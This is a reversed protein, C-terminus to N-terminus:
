CHIVVNSVTTRKSASIIRYQPNFYVSFMELRVNRDHIGLLVFCELKIKNKALCGLEQFAYRAQLVDDADETARRWGYAKVDLYSIGNEM